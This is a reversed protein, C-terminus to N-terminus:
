NNYYNLERLVNSLIHEPTEYEDVSLADLPEKACVEIERRRQSALFQHSLAGEVTIRTTPNFSLLSLLLDIGESPTSQFRSKFDIGESRRSSALLQQIQEVAHVGFGASDGCRGTGLVDIIVALQGPRNVERDRSLEGWSGGPFLTKGCGYSSFPENGAQVAFLEALICGVSWVDIARHVYM